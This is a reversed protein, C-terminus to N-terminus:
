RQGEDGPAALGGPERGGVCAQSTGCERTATACLVPTTRLAYDRTASNLVPMTQRSRLATSWRAPTIQSSAGSRAQRIKVLFKSRQPKHSLRARSSCPWRRGPRPRVLSLNPCIRLSRHHPVL